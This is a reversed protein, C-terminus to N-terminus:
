TYPPRLLQRSLIASANKDRKTSIHARHFPNAGRSAPPLIACMFVAFRHCRAPRELSRPIRRTTPPAATSEARMITTYSFGAGTGLASCVANVWVFATAVQGAPAEGACGLPRFFTPMKLSCVALKVHLTDNM